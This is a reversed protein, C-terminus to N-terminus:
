LASKYIYGYNLREIYDDVVMYSLQGRGFCSYHMIVHCMIYNNDTQWEDVVKSVYKM